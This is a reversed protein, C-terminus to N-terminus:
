PHELRWMPLGIRAHISLHLTYDSYEVSAAKGDLDQAGIAVTCVDTPQSSRERKHTYRLTAIELQWDV